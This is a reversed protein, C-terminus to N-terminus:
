GVSSTADGPTNFPSLGATLGQATGLREVDPPAYPEDPNASEIEIELESGM